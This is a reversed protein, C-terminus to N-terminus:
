NGPPPVVNLHRALQRQAQDQLQQMHPCHLELERLRYGRHFLALWGGEQGEVPALGGFAFGSATLRNLDCAFHQSLQLRISILWQQPLSRLQKLLDPRLTKLRVDYRNSHQELEIAAGRWRVTQTQTGFVDSLHQMLDRCSAPWTQRPLPRQYGEVIRCGLVISEPEPCGFPSPVYDPLVGTNHFGLNGAMKQTFPHHTVQKILVDHCGLAQAHTLLQQGLRTAINLGRSDPHVVSLALEATHSGRGRVLTAHGCIQDELVAVLSHWRKDAHNQNIIQPLYVHPQVYRDGYVQRFLQSVATADSERYNRLMLPAM